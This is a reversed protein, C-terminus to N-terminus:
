REHQIREIHEAFEKMFEERCEEKDEDNDMYGFEGSSWVIRKCNPCEIEIRVYECGTDCGYVGNYLEEELEANCFVCLNKTM